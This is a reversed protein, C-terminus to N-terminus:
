WFYRYTVAELISSLFRYNGDLTCVPAWFVYVGTGTHILENQLALGLTHNFNLLIYRSFDWFIECVVLFTGKPWKMTYPTNTHKALLLGNLGWKDHM